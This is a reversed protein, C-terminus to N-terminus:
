RNSWSRGRNALTQLRSAINNPGGVTWVDGGPNITAMVEGSCIGCRIELAVRHSAMLDVNLESVKALTDLATRVARLADDEHSVEAGFVAMVADGIFKETAGGHAEVCSRAAWRYRDLIQRMAEPDFRASLATSEVLDMFLITVNRRSERAAGPAITPNGCRSCFRADAPLVADCHACNM